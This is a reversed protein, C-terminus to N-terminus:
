EKILNNFMACAFYGLWMLRIERDVFNEEKDIKFNSENFRYKRKCIEIFQKRIEIVALGEDTNM